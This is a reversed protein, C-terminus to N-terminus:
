GFISTDPVQRRVADRFGADVRFAFGRETHITTGTAHFDQLHRCFREVDDIEVAEGTTAEVTISAPYSM